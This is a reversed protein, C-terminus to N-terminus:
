YRNARVIMDATRGSGVVATSVVAAAGEVTSDTAGAGVETWGSGETAGEDAAGVVGGGVEEAWGM